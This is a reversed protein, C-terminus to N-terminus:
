VAAAKRVRRLLGAALAVGSLLALESPEPVAASGNLQFARDAYTTYTGSGLNQQKSVGDGGSGSIWGFGSAGNGEVYISFWQQVGGQLFLSSPLTANLRYFGTQLGGLTGYGLFQFSVANFALTASDTVTGPVGANDSAVAFTWSDGEPTPATPGSAFFGGTWTVQNVSSSQAIQIRDWMLFGANPAFIQSTRGDSFALPQDVIVDASATLGGLILLSLTYRLQQM